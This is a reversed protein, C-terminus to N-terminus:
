VHVGRKGRSDTCAVNQHFERIEWLNKLEKYWLLHEISECVSTFTKRLLKRQFSDRFIQIQIMSSTRLRMEPDQKCNVYKNAVLLRQGRILNRSNDAWCNRHGPAWIPFLLRTGSRTRESAFQPFIKRAKWTVLLRCCPRQLSSRCSSLLPLSHCSPRTIFCSM